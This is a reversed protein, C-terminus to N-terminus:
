VDYSQLFDRGEKTKKIENKNSRILGRLNEKGLITYIEYFETFNAYGLEKLRLDLTDVSMDFFSSIEEATCFTECLERLKEYSFEKKSRNIM